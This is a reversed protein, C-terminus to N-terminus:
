GSAGTCCRFQQDQLPMSPAAASGAPLLLRALLPLLPFAEPLPHSPAPLALPLTDSHSRMPLATVDCPSHSLWPQGGLRLRLGERGRLWGCAECLCRNGFHPDCCAPRRWRTNQSIPAAMKFHAVCAVMWGKGPAARM